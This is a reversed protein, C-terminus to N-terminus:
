MVYGKLRELDERNPNRFAVGVQIENGVDRMHRADCEFRLQAKTLPLEFCVEFGPLKGTSTFRIDSGRPYGVM